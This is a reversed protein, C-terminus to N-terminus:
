FRLEKAPATRSAKLAPYITALANLFGAVLSISVIDSFRLDIPVFDIPYVDTDLFTSGSLNEIWSILDPVWHCGLVGLVVGVSIGLAGILSGKVIYVSLIGTKSLGLTQLVAVDRRKELVSMILMSIVNFAAIAIVMFILLSVMNRSLQIAEYLNGHTQFWDRFGYGYPLSEIIQYGMHRAVFPDHLQVRLGHAGDEIGSIRALHAMNGIAFLQDLETNTTFFGTVVFSYAKVGRSGTGPSILRVIQGKSVGLANQIVKSLLIDNKVPLNLSQRLLLDSFVRPMHESDFGLLHIPRTKGRFDVIGQLQSYPTVETVEKHKLLKDTNTQWEENKQDKIVTLHPVVHLVRDKLERDFGNMVSVVVILLAVGVVLGVMALLSIFSVLNDRKTQSFTFRLGIFIAAPKFM